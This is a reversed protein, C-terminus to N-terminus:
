YRLKRNILGTMADPRGALWTTLNAELIGQLRAETNAGRSSCHPTLHVRPHTYVWHGAPPPEENWVDLTARAIPGDLAIRLAEAVILEGRAINILHQGSRCRAFTGRDFLGRTDDTLPACLVLHDSHACLEPLPVFEVEDTAAAARRRTARVTMGFARARHAIARGIEGYGFLGISRGYLSGISRPGWDDPQGVRIAGLQKEFDLMAALVYEAIAVAAAGRSVTVHPIDFLWDPAQDVGTPRIHIWALSGAWAPRSRPLSRLKGNAVLLVTAGEPVAWPDEAPLRDIRAEPPLRTRLWEDQAAGLQHAVHLRGIM